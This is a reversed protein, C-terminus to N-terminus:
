AALRRGTFYRHVEELEAPTLLRHEAQRELWELRRKAKETM